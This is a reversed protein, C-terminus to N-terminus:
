PIVAPIIYSQAWQAGPTRQYELVQKSREAGVKVVVIEIESGLHLYIQLTETGTNTKQWIVRIQELKKLAQKAKNKKGSVTAYDEYGVNRLALPMDTSVPPATLTVTDDFKGSVWSFLGSIWEPLKTQVDTIPIPITTSAELKHSSGALVGKGIRGKREHSYVYKGKMPGVEVEAAGEYLQVTEKTMAGKTGPTTPAQRKHRTGYGAKGALKAKAKLPNLGISFGEPTVEAKAEGELAGYGGSMAYVDDDGGEGFAKDEVQRAWSESQGKGLSDMRGGYMYNVFISPFIKSDRLRRYMAYSILKMMDLSNNAQAELFMGIEGKGEIGAMGGGTVKAGGIFGLEAKGKTKEAKEAELTLHGGLYAESAPDKWVPIKLEVEFKGLGRGPITRDVLQALWEFLRNTEGEYRDKIVQVDTAVDTDQLETEGLDTNRYDNLADKEQTISALFEILAAKRETRSDDSAHSAQYYKMVEELKAITVYLTRSHDTNAQKTDFTKARDALYSKHLEGIHKMKKGRMDIKGFFVKHATKEKYKEYSWILQPKSAFSSIPAPTTTTGPTTPTTTTTTPTTGGGNRQILGYPARQVKNAAPVGKLMRMVAQNGVTSQLKQVMNPTLRRTQLLQKDDTVPLESEFLESGNQNPEIKTSKAPKERKPSHQGDM